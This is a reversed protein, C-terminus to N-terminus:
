GAGSHWDHEWAAGATIPIFTSRKSISSAVSSSSSTRLVSPFTTQGAVWLHGERRAKELVSPSTTEDLVSAPAHGVLLRAAALVIAPLRALDEPRAATIAYRATM